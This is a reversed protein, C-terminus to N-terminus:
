AGIYMAIKHMANVYQMLRSVKLRSELSDKIYANKSQVSKWRGHRQFLRDLVGSNAALTAGGARMSHTSYEKSDLGIADSKRKVIDIVNSYSMKKTKQLFQKGNSIFVRCFLFDNEAWCKGSMSIYTEMLKVPCFAGSIRSVVVDNGERLQDAKSQQINIKIHNQSIELDSWTISLLESVRLFAYFSLIILLTNRVDTLSDIDMLDFLLHMHSLEFPEKPARPKALRRKLGELVEGLQVDALPSAHGAIKHAWAIAACATNIVSYTIDNKSIHTLYLGVHLPAAPLAQVEPYLAAWAEWKCFALKYAKLTLPARSEELVGLRDQNLLQLDAGLLSEPQMSGGDECNGSFVTLGVKCLHEKNWQSM